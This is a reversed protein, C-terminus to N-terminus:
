LCRTGCKMLRKKKKQFFIWTEDVERMEPSLNPTVSQCQTWRPREFLIWRRRQQARVCGFCDGNEERKLSFLRWEQARMELLFV